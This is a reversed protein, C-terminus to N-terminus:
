YTDNGLINFYMLSHVHLATLCLVPVTSSKPLIPLQKRRERYLALSVNRLDTRQLNNETIDKLENRIVAVPRKTVDGGKNRVRM